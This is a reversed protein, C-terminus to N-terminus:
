STIIFFFCCHAHANMGFEGAGGVKAHAFTKKGAERCCFSHDHDLHIYM